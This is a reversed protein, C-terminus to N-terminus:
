CSFGAGNGSFIHAFLKQVSGNVKDFERAFNLGKDTLCYVRRRNEEVGKLWGTREMAYLHSYVTGPSPLFHFRRHIYKIADYGSFCGGNGNLALLLIFDMFGNIIRKEIERM